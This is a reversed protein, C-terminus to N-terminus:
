GKQKSVNIGYNKNVETEPDEEIIDRTLTTNFTYVPDEPEASEVSHLDELILNVNPPASKTQETKHGSVM